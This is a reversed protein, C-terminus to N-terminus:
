RHEPKAERMMLHMGAVKAKKRGFLVKYVQETIPMEIKYKRALLRASKTTRIGEVVMITKSLAQKPTLGKGLMEGYNRNRSHRSICTTILDGIGTLGAFTEQRAGMATGLRTIEHIGRTILASKTNDGFGLGDSIGCAIATINKLSGGLEVGIVDTNTYVRFYPSMFIKQIYKTKKSDRNAAVITTPIDKVVEEAHSPGSLVVINKKSLPLEQAIVQSMRLLTVNEIGKAVSVLLINRLNFPKLLKATSRIIHSPVALVIVNAKKVTEKIDSTILIDKPIKFGALFKINERKKQLIEAYDPFFEWLAVKYGNKHLHLAITTGWSGAGLVAIKKM